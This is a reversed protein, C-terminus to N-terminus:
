DMGHLRRALKFAEEPLIGVDNRIRKAADIVQGAIQPSEEMVSRVILMNMRELRGEYSSLKSCMKFYLRLCLFACVVTHIPIIFYCYINIWQPMQHDYMEM